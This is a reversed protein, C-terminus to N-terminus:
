THSLLQTITRTTEEENVLNIIEQALSKEPDTKASDIKFLDFKALSNFVAVVAGINIRPGFRELLRRLFSKVKLSDLLRDRDGIYGFLHYDEFNEGFWGRADLGSLYFRDAM